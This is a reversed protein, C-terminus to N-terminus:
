VERSLRMYNMKVECDCYGGGLRIEELVGARDNEPIHDKVWNVTHKLTGDCRSLVCRSDLYDSLLRKQEQNLSVPTIGEGHEIGQYAAECQAQYEDWERKAREKEKKTKGPYPDGADVERIFRELDEEPFRDLTERIQHQMRSLVQGSPDDTNVGSQAYSKVQLFQDYEKQTVPAFSLSMLIFCGITTLMVAGCLIGSEKGTCLKAICAIVFLVISIYLLNMAIERFM